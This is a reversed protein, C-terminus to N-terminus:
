LLMIILLLGTLFGLSKMMKEYKGQKEAADREERDLHAMALKIQKQQQVRDHRGLTGGFQSLIEFEGQKLSLSKWAERLCEDWAIKVTTEGAALRKSFAEFFGSFPSGIQKSLRISAESLPTHSYMIEAELSQLAMKIQRLQKTRQSFHRAAEFGAWTTALLIIVAGIIKLM